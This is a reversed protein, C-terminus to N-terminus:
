LLAVQFTDMIIQNLKWTLYFEDLLCVRCMHIYLPNVNHNALGRTGGADRTTVELIIIELFIIRINRVLHTLLAVAQLAEPHEPVCASIVDQVLETNRVTTM